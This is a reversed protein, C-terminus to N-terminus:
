CSTTLNLVIIALWHVKDGGLVSIAVPAVAYPLLRLVWAHPLWPRDRFVGVFTLLYLALPLVWLFPAAALDTTIFATVAICLGAPIATLGM